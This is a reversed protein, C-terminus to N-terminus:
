NKLDAQNLEVNIAEKVDPKANRLAKIIQIEEPSMQIDDISLVANRASRGGDKLEALLRRNREQRKAISELFEEIDSSSLDKLLGLWKQQVVDITEETDKGTVLWEESCKLKEAVAAIRKRTHTCQYDYKYKHPFVSILM